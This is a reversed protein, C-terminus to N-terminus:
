DINPVETLEFTVLELPGEYVTRFYRSVCRPEKNIVTDTYEKIAKLCSAKQKWYKHGPNTIDAVLKGTAKDRVAYLYEKKAM